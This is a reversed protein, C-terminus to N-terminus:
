VSDLITSSNLHFKQLLYAARLWTWTSIVHLAHESLIAASCVPWLSMIHVQHVKWVKAKTSKETWNSSLESLNDFLISTDSTRIESINPMFAASKQVSEAAYRCCGTLYSLSLRSKLKIEDYGQFQRSWLLHPLSLSDNEIETSHFIADPGFNEM